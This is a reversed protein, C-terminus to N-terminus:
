KHQKEWIDYLNFLVERINGDHRTFLESVIETPINKEENQLLQEVIQCALDLSSSTNYIEPLGVPVHSTVLLGVDRDHCYRNLWFRNWSNLQEYGDVVVIAPKSSVTLEITERWDNTLRHQANHLEFFIPKRGAEDLPTLIHSILTSKGSGHPGVIEGRWLNQRLRNIIDEASSGLPFCFTVAGPRVRRTCFPNERFLKEDNMILGYAM